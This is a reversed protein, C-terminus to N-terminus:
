RVKWTAQFIPEEPKQQDFNNSSGWRPSRTLGWGTAKPQQNLRDPMINANWGGTDSSKEINAEKSVQSGWVDSKESMGGIEMSREAHFEKRNQIQIVVLLM